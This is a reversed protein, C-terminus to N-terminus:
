TYRGRGEIEALTAIAADARAYTRRYASLVVEFLDLLDFHASTWAEKLLRLDVGQAELSDTKEGMSFDIAYIRGDRWILNSTTLDGHVIGHAHLTGALVGIRDALDRPEGVRNQLAEKVTPGDVFEMVIRHEKLDVDYLIPVSLGHRRAEAMLRAEARIRSNRLADDLSEHRYGKPVRVKDVAARGHWETRRLEAEAGRKLLM